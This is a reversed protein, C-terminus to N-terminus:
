TGNKHEELLRYYMIVQELLNRLGEDELSKRRIKEWLQREQMEERFRPRTIM